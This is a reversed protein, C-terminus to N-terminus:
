NYFKLQISKNKILNEAKELDQKTDIGIAQLNTEHVKISLGNYLFSLQELKEAEELYCKNFQSIKQLAKLTYAYIGIHKYYIKDSKKKDNYYPIAFRSFYLAFSKKNCIVKVTNPCIIEEEKQIQKKLTWIDANDHNCTQLLTEIMQQNLFPEDCQWNVFIDADVNNSNISEILRNTGSKCNQSTMIFNAGFTKLLNATKQSDIAFIIKDFFTIKNAANWVWQLIPKGALNKLIKEPFRSSNLRAPIICAIKKKLFVIYEPIKFNNIFTILIQM